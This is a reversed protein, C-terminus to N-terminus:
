RAAESRIREINDYFAGEGYSTAPQMTPQLTDERIPGQAGRQGTTAAQIKGINDYFAGEGYSTTSQRASQMADERLPGQAGRNAGVALQRQAEIEDMGAWLLDRGFSAFPMSACTAVLLGICTRPLPIHKM